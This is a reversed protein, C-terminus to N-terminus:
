KYVYTYLISKISEYVRIYVCTYICEFYRRTQCISPKSLLVVEIIKNFTGPWGRSSGSSKGGQFLSFM